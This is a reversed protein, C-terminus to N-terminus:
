EELTHMISNSRGSSPLSNDSGLKQQTTVFPHRRSVAWSAMPCSCDGVVCKSRRSCVCAVCWRRHWVYPARSVRMVRRHSDAYRLRLFDHSASRCQRSDITHCKPVRVISHAVNPVHACGDSHAVNPVHACGDGKERLVVDCEALPRSRTLIVARIIRRLINEM